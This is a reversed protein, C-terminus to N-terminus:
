NYVSYAPQALHSTHPFPSPPRRIHIHPWFDNTFLRLVARLVARVEAWRHVIPTNAKLRAWALARVRNGVGVGRREKGQEGGVAEEGDGREADKLALRQTVLHYLVLDFVGAPLLNKSIDLYGADRAGLTLTTSTFGHNPIHKTAASLIAAHAPPFAPPPAHDYSHYPRPLVRLNTLLPVPHPCKTFLHHAQSLRLRTPPPM